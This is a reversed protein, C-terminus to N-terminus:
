NETDEKKNHSSCENNTSKIDDIEKNNDNIEDNKEKIISNILQKNQNEEDKINKNKEEM